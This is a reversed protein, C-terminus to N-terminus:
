REEETSSHFLPNKGRRYDFQRTELARYGDEACTEVSIGLKEAREILRVQHATEHVDVPIEIRGEEEGFGLPFLGSSPVTGLGQDRAFLVEEVVGWSVGKGDDKDGIGSDSSM